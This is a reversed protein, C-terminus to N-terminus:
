FNNKYKDAVSQVLGISVGLYKAIRSYSAKVKRGFEDISIYGQQLLKTIEDEKKLKTAKPRGLKGGKERALKLGSKIRYSHQRVWEEGLGALVPIILNAFTTKQFYEDLTEQNQNLDYISVKCKCLEEVTRVVDALNRGLRSIEHVLVKQIQNSRALNIVKETGQRRVKRGSINEVVEEVVQWDNKKALERLEVLQREVDQSGDSKSVRAYILTKM